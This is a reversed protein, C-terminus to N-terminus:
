EAVTHGIKPREKPHADTSATGGIEVKATASDVGWKALLPALRERDQEHLVQDDECMMQMNHITKRLKEYAPADAWLDATVNEIKKPQDRVERGKTQQM